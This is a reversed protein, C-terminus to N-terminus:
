KKLEGVLSGRCRRYQQWQPWCAVTHSRGNYNEVPSTPWSVGTVVNDYIAGTCVHFYLELTLNLTLTTNHLWCSLLMTRNVVFEISNLALWIITALTCRDFDPITWVRSEPSFMERQDHREAISCIWILMATQKGDAHCLHSRSPDSTLMWISIKLLRKCTGQSDIAIRRSFCSPPAFRLTQWISHM